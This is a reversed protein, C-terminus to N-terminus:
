QSVKGSSVEKEKLESYHKMIYFCDAETLEVGAMKEALEIVYDVAWMNTLGSQQVEVYAEFKERENEM